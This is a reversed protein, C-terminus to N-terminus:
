PYAEQAAGATHLPIEIITMLIFFATTRNKQVVANANSQSIKCEDTIPYPM